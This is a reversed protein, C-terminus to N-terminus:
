FLWSIRGEWRLNHITGTERDEAEFPNALRLSSAAVEGRAEWREFLRATVGGGYTVQSQSRTAFDRGQESSPDTVLSGVGLLAYPMVGLDGVAGFDPALLVHLDFSYVNTDVPGEEAALETSGFGMAARGRIGTWLRREIAVSALTTDEYPAAEDWQLSGLGFGVAFNRETPVIGGPPPAGARPVQASLTAASLLATTLAAVAIMAWRAAAHAEELARM